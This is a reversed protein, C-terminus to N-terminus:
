EVKVLAVGKVKDRADLRPVESMPQDVKMRKAVPEDQDKVEEHKTTGNKEAKESKTITSDDQLPLCAGNLLEGELPRKLTQAPNLPNLSEGEM